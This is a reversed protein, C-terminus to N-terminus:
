AKDRIDTNDAQSSELMPNKSRSACLDAKPAADCRLAAMSFTQSPGPRWYGSCPGLDPFDREATMRSENKAKAQVFTRKRRQMVAFHWWASPRLDAAFV